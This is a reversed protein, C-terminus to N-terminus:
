RFISGMDPQLNTFLKVLKSTGCVTNTVFNATGTGVPTLAPGGGAENLTGNFNYTYVPPQAILKGALLLLTVLLFLYIKKM